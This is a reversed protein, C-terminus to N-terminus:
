PSTYKFRSCLSCMLGVHGTLNGKTVTINPKPVNPAFGLARKSLRRTMM